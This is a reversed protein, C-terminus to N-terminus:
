DRQTLCAGCPLAKNGKGVKVELALVRRAWLSICVFCRAQTVGQPLSPPSLYRPWLGVGDQVGLASPAQYEIESDRCWETHNEM